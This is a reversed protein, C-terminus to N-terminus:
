MIFCGEESGPSTFDSIFKGNGAVHRSITAGRDYKVSVTANDIAYAGLLSTTVIGSVSARGVAKIVSSKAKCKGSIRASDKVDIKLEGLTYDVKMEIVAEGGARLTLSDAVSDHIIMGGTGFCQVTEVKGEFSVNLPIDANAQSDPADEIVMTNGKTVCRVGAEGVLTQNKLIM